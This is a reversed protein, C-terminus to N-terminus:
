LERRQNSTLNSNNEIADTMKINIFNNMVANQLIGYAIGVAVGGVGVIFATAANNNIFASINTTAENLFGTNRTRAFEKLNNYAASLASKGDPLSFANEILQMTGALDEAEAPTNLLCANEALIADIAAVLAAIKNTLIIDLAVVEGELAAIASGQNFSDAAAGVLMNAADIWGNGWTLNIFPDYTYYLKLKGDIDIKVSYDPVGTPFQIVFDSTSKVWFRIEGLINSNYIYTNTIAPTPVPIITGPTIETNILWTLPNLDEYIGNSTIDYNTQLTQLNSTLTDIEGQLLKYNVDAPNLHTRGVYATNQCNINM